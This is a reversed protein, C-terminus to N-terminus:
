FTKVARVTADLATDLLHRHERLKATFRYVADDSPVVGGLVKRLADHEAILRLTRSWTPLAYVSKALLVGVMTRVPYGPRGTWRTDELARVLAAVAPLDLLAAVRNADSWPHVTSAAM